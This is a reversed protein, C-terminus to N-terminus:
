WLELPIHASALDLFPGSSGLPQPHWMTVSRISPICMGPEALVPAGQQRRVVPILCPPTALVLGQPKPVSGHDDGLCPLCPPKFVLCPAVFPSDMVGLGWHGPPHLSHPSPTPWIHPCFVKEWASGLCGSYRVGRHISYATVNLM